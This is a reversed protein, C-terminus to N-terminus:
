LVVSQELLSQGYFELCLLEERRMTYEIRNTYTTRYVQVLMIIKGCMKCKPVLYKSQADRGEGPTKIETPSQVRM